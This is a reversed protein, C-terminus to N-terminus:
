PKKNEVLIKRKLLEQSLGLVDKEIEELSGQFDLSLEKAIQKLKKKGDLKEWLAKGTENLTFIGDELDGIGSTIPIIVKEGQIDRAVVDDSPKLISGLNVKSEM